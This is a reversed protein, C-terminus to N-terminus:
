HKPGFAEQLLGPEFGPVEEGRKAYRYLAASYIGMLASQYIGLGLVLLVTVAGIAAAAMGSVGSVMLALLAGILFVVMTVLGFALGVGVHGAANEGWTKRLLAISTKVADVPGVDQAVLVPVTLFAGLTWAAGLTATVLRGLFGAREELARLLVGVTASIAAYGLIPVAKSWAVGLSEQVTPREGEMHALAASVLASGFFFIVFYQSLYFLFGVVWWALASTGDRPLLGWGFVPLVFTALVVLSAMLSLVPFILLQRNASLVAASAKVLAWSRHIKEFM